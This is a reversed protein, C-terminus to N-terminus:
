SFELGWFVFRLCIDVRPALAQAARSRFKFNLVALIVALWEVSSM